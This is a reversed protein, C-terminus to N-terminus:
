RQKIHKFESKLTSEKIAKTDSVGYRPDCSSLIFVKGESTDVINKLIYKKGMCFRRKKKYVNNVYYNM